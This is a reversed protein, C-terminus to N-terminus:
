DGLRNLLDDFAANLEEGSLNEIEKRRETKEADIRLMMKKYASKQQELQNRAANLQELSLEFNERLEELKQEQSKLKKERKKLEEKLGRLRTQRFLSFGFAAALAGLIYPLSKKPLMGIRSFIFMLVVILILGLAFIIDIDPM